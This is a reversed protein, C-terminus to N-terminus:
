AFSAANTILSRLAPCNERPLSIFFLMTGAIRYSTSYLGIRSDQRKVL